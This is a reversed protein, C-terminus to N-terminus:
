NPSTSAAARWSRAEHRGNHVLMTRCVRRKAREGCGDGCLRAGEELALRAKNGVGGVAEKNGGVSNVDNEAESKVYEWRSGSRGFQM